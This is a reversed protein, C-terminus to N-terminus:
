RQVEANGLDVELDLVILGRREGVADYTGDIENSVGDEEVGFVEIRGLDVDSTLRVDVDPPVTVEANGISLDVDIRVTEGDFDLGSLDVVLDGIGLEYRRELDDFDTVVYERDGVGDRIAPEVAATVPIALAFLIGLPVLGRARGTFASAILGAGIIVLGGSVVALASVDVWDALHLALSIGGGLLLLSLVLPTIVTSDDRVPEPEEPAAPVYSEPPATPPPPPLEDPPPPEPPPGEPPSPPLPPAPPTEDRDPDRVLIAIGVGILLLPITLGWMPGPGVIWFLLVAGLILAVLGAANQSGSGLEMGQDAPSDAAPMVLWAILYLLVGSGGLVAAAVFLIRIITPDIGFHRGLGDCVGAIKKDTGRRLRRPGPGPAAAPVQPPPPPHTTTDM